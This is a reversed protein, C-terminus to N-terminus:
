KFNSNSHLHLHVPHVLVVPQPTGLAIVDVLGIYGIQAHSEAIVVVLFLHTCRAYGKGLRTAAFQVNVAVEDRHM